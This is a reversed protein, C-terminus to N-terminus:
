VHHLLSHLVELLGLVHLLVNGETINLEWLLLLLRLVVHLLRLLWVHLDLLWSLFAEVVVPHLACLSSKFDVVWLDLVVALYDLVGEKSV